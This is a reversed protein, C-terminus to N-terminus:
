DDYTEQYFQALGCMADTVAKQAEVISDNACKIEDAIEPDNESGAMKATKINAETLDNMIWKLLRITKRM